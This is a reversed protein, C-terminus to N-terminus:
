RAGVEGEPKEEERRQMRGAKCRLWSAKREEGTKELMERKIGPARGVSALGLVGGRRQAKNREVGEKDQRM